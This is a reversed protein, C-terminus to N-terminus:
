SLLLGDLLFQPIRQFPFFQGSPLVTPYGGTQDVGAWLISVIPLALVFPKSLLQVIHMPNKGAAYFFQAGVIPLGLVRASLSLVDSLPKRCTAHPQSFHFSSTVVKARYIPM